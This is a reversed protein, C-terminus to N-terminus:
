TLEERLERLATELQTYGGMKVAITGDRFDTIPGAVCYSSQDTERVTQEAGDEDPQKEVVSWVLGDTFLQAAEAYTMQLTITKSARGDWDRDIQKGAIVAPYERGGTKLYLM